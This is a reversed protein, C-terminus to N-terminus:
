ADIIAKEYVEIHARSISRTDYRLQAASRASASIVSLEPSTIARRLTKAMLHPDPPTLFGTVSEEILEPIGGVNSAVVPLGMLQAEGIVNPSNESRSPVVLLTSESILRRVEARPQSGHQVIRLNSNSSIPLHGGGITHLEIQPTFIPSQEDSLLNLAEILLSLGKVETNINASIFLLKHPKRSNSLYEAHGTYDSSISNPIHVLSKLNSDLGARIFQEKMWRSPSIVSVNSAHRFFDNVQLKSRYVVEKNTRFAPCNSCSSIFKECGLTTHCGGTILREDHLTFVLPIEQSIREFDGINLINYWNHIHIIDFEKQLLKSVNLNSISTPTVIGFPQITNVQQCLTVIKGLLDRAVKSGGTYQFSNLNDRSVVTSEIGSDGLLSSIQEAAVAAGGDRGTSIHAVRISM